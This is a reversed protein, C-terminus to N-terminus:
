GGTVLRAIDRYTILLILGMLLVFGAMHVWGEYEPKIPKRRVAEVLLFVLRGGDLAPLPLLNILGVNLSIIVILNIVQEFDQRIAETMFSIIGVPGMADQVGEGHFILGKLSDVMYVTIDYIKYGSVALAGFPSYRQVQSGLTIGIKGGNDTKQPAVMVNLSQGSRQVTLTVAKDPGGASIIEVLKVAGEESLAISEGNVATIVDGAQLGSTAAPMGSTIEQVVPVTYVTGFAMLFVVVALYALVFNMAPGSFITLFRKWVPANCFAKPDFSSDDEGEFKCYGGLPLLRISYDIDKKRWGILKPGFGVAFELVTIGSARAATYHGLEHAFIIVGFVLLAVLFYL